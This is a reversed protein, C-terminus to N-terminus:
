PSVFLGSRLRSNRGNPNVVYIDRFGPIATASIAINAVILDEEVVVYNTVSIGEKTFRLESGPVFGMGTVTLTAKSNRSLMNPSANVVTLPRPLIEIAAPSTITLGDKGDFAALRISHPGIALRVTALLGRAILADGDFWAVTLTDGDPDRSGTADLTVDAGNKSTAQITAPLPAIVAVPPQNIPNGSGSDDNPVDSIIIRFPLTTFTLGRGDNIVVRVNTSAVTDGQRPAVRLTANRSGPDGAIIQAFSPAGLLSFTVADGDPDAAQLLLSRIEGAKVYQDNINDMLPAKDGPVGGTPPQPDGKTLTVEMTAKSENGVRDKAAFTVVTKGLPFVSGSALSATVNINGDVMDYAIPLVFNIAEGTESGTIKSIASPVGSIRPSTTDVVNVFQEGSDSSVGSGDTVVLKILHAGVGLKRDSIRATSVTLGNDLWQYTLPDEPDEDSSASGDLRVITGESRRAEVQLGITEAIAVPPHNNPNTAPVKLVFNEATTLIHLNGDGSYGGRWSPGSVAFPATAMNLSWSFIPSGSLLKLWGHQGPLITSTIPPQLLSPRIQVLRNETRAVTAGFSALLEDYLTVTAAGRTNVPDLLSSAPRSFGLLTSNDVQSPVFALATTAPWRDFVADNFQLSAITASGDREVADPTNKAVALANFSARQGSIERVQASGILHNFQIPLARNDIAMVMVWGRQDPALGEAELVTTQLAPLTLISEKVQTPEAMGTFFVRVRVKQTPHTNTLYIQSSGYSGSTFRPYVLLSGAKTESAGQSGGTADSQERTVVEAVPNDPFRAPITIRFHELWELTQMNRANHMPSNGGDTLSLGLVPLQMAVPGEGARASFSAWGPRNASIISNFPPVTWVEGVSKNLMCSVGLEQSVPRGTNDYATATLNFAAPQERVLDAVPSYLAVGTTVAPGAVPDQNQLSDIAVLKPLRDFETNDFKIDFSSGGDNFSVPGASRKAVAFANYSAEHGSGDRLNANGILWNFQSPLGQSNVAVAMVYGTKGPSERSAVLTRSQNGVLTVFQDEYMCDHVFFIRVGVADRPNTNTLTILTNVENQRNTDSTYKHFFLVSGAKTGGSASRPASSGVQPIGPGVQPQNPDTQSASGPTEAFDSHQAWASRGLQVIGAAVVLLFTLIFKHHSVRLHPCIVRIWRVHPKYPM